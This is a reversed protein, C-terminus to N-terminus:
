FHIGRFDIVAKFIVPDYWNGENRSSCSLYIFTDSKFTQRSLHCSIIQNAYTKLSTKVDNKVVREFRQRTIYLLVTKRSQIYALLCM